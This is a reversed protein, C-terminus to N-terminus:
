EKALAAEIDVATIEAFAEKDGQRGQDHIRVGQANRIKQSFNRIERANAWSTKDRNEYLTGIAKLATKQADADLIAKSRKMSNLFIEFLEKVSYDQFKVPKESFRARLGPDIAFVGELDYGAFIVALRDRNNEMEAVLTTLAERGYDQEGGQALQHAEDVFLVGDLAETIKAKTKGATQGLYGGVLDARAVSVVHGRKLLGTASYIEGVVNAVTTKGTGPPGEFALHLSMPESNYGHQRRAAEIEASKILDGMRKKVVGLGTMGSLDGVIDVLSRKPTEVSVTAKASASLALLAAETDSKSSPAPAQVVQKARNLDWLRYTLVAAAILAIYIAYPAIQLAVIGTLSVIILSVVPNHAFFTGVFNM